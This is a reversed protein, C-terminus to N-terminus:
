RFNLEVFNEKTKARESEKHVCKIWDSEDNRMIADRYTCPSRPKPFEKEKAREAETEGTNRNTTQIVDSQKSIRDNLQLLKM